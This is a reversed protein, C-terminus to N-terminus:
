AGIVGHSTLDVILAHVREALQETTVTTTAFTTRTATGTPAGWGIKRTGIVQSGMVKLGGGSVGLNVFGDGTLTAVNQEVGSANAAMLQLTTAEAGTTWAGVYSTTNFQGMSCFATASTGYVRWSVQGQTSPLIIGRDAYIQLTPNDGAIFDLKSGSKRIRYDGVTQTTFKGGPAVSADFAISDGSKLALAAGSYTGQSLDVGVFYDGIVGYAHDVDDTGSNMALYNFRPIEYGGSDGGTPKLISVNGLMAVDQYGKDDLVCDGMGYLNVKAGAANIQFGSYGTSNQGSWYVVSGTSGHPTALMSGYHLYADGEGSHSGQWYNQYAGTRAMRSQGGPIKGATFSGSLNGDTDREQHGWQNIWYKHLQYSDTLNAYFEVPVSPNDAAFNVKRDYPTVGDKYYRRPNWGGSDPTVSAGQTLTYSINHAAPTAVIRHADRVLVPSLGAAEAAAFASEDDTAGDGAAGHHLVTYPEAAEWGTMGAIDTNGDDLFRYQGLDDFWITGVAVTDGAADMRAWAAVMRARTSFDPGAEYWKVGGATIGHHDSAGSAAIRAYKGGVVVMDGTAVTGVEGTSYTLATDAELAALNTFALGALVAADFAAEAYAQANEIEATTPGVELGSGDGSFTLVRDSREAATDSFLPTPVNSTRSVRLTRGLRTDIGQMAQWVRDLEVNFPGSKFEGRLQLDSSRELPVALYISYADTGNAPTTLTVVGSSTGDGTVTYDTNLVLPTESGAKYVELWSAQEFYFDLSITTVGAAPTLPGVVLDNESVAM